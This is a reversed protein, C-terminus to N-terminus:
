KHCAKLPRANRYKSLSIQLDFSIASLGEVFLLQKEFLTFHDTGLNLLAWSSSNKKEM